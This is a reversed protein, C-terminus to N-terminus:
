ILTMKSIIKLFIYAQSWFLILIYKKFNNLRNSLAGVSKIFKAIVLNYKNSLAFSYLKVLQICLM